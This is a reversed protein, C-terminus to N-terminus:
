FWGFMIISLKVWFLRGIVYFIVVVSCVGSFVKMMCLSLVGFCLLNVMLVSVLLLWMMILLLMM